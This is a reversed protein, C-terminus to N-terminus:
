HHDKPEVHGPGNAPPDRFYELIPEQKIERPEDGHLKQDAWLSIAQTQQHLRAGCDAQSWDVERWDPPYAWVGSRALAPQHCDSYIWPPYKTKEVRAKEKEWWPTKKTTAYQSKLPSTTRVWPPHMELAPLPATLVAVLMGSNFLTRQDLM